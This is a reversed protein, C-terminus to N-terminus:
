LYEKAAELTDEMFYIRVPRLPNTSIFLECTIGPFLRAEECVDLELHNWREYWSSGSCDHYFSRVFLMEEPTTEYGLVTFTNHFLFFILTLEYHM